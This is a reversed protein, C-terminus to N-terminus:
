SNNEHYEKAVKCDSEIQKSLEAFSDFKIEPRIRELFEVRIEKGYLDKSFNFIHTEINKKNDGITPKIGVNTIGQYCTGNYTCYTVYVGHAPTVM